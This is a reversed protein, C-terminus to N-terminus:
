QAVIVMSPRLVRDQLTYGKQFVEVVTDAPHEDDAPITQVAQHLNPDFHEGLAKIEEVGAEKLAHVLGELVMTIGKKMSVAQEDTVETALARELNDLSGLIGKALDQSRYKQLQERETKNRRSMNQMEAQTRLFKDEMEDLQNKLDTIEKETESIVEETIEENEVVEDVAEKAKVDEAKPTKKKKLEKEPM